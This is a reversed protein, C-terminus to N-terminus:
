FSILKGARKVPVVTPHKLTVLKKAAINRQAELILANVNPM